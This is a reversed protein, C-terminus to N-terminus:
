RMVTSVLMAASNLTVRASGAPRFVKLRYKWTSGVPPSDFVVGANWSDTNACNQNLLEIPTIGNGYREVIFDSSGPDSNQGRQNIYWHIAVTQTSQGFNPITTKVNFLLIHEGIVTSNFSNSERADYPAWSSVGWSPVVLANDGIQLTGVQANQINAATVMATNVKLSSAEINGRAYLNHVELFSGGGLYEKFLAWGNANPFDQLVGVYDDSQIVNGIMANTIRADPILATANLAIVTEGNVTDVVFPTVVDNLPSESTAGQAPPIVIAFRSAAITFTSETGNNNQAFGSVYGENDIKVGYTAELAVVDDIIEGTVTQFTNLSVSGGGISAQLSEIQGVFVTDATALALQEQQIAAVSNNFTALIGNIQGVLAADDTVREQTENLVLTDITGLDAQLQALQSAFLSEQGLRALNEDYLSTGLASIEGLQNLLGTDLLDQGVRDKLMELIAEVSPQMVGYAPGIVDGRTGYVSVLQVWYYFGIGVEVDATDLYTNGQANALPSALDFNGGPSRWIGTYAVAEPNVSPWTWDLRIGQFQGRATLVSNNLDPDGPIPTTVGVGCVSAM